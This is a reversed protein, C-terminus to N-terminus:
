RLVSLSPEPTLRAPGRGRNQFQKQSGLILEVLHREVKREPQARGMEEIQQKEREQHPATELDQTRMRLEVPVVVTRGPTLPERERFSVLGIRLEPCRAVFFGRPRRPDSKRTM